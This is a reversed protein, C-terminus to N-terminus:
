AVISVRPSLRGSVPESLLVVVCGRTRDLVEVFTRADVERLKSGGGGSATTSGQQRMEERRRRRWRELEDDGGGQKREEARKVKDEEDLTMAVMARSALRERTALRAERLMAQEHADAAAADGLVGKIGTQHRRTSASSADRQFGAGRTAGRGDLGQQVTYGANSTSASTRPASSTPEDLDSGLEDDTNLEAEGQQEDGEDDSRDGPISGRDEPHARSSRGDAGASIGQGSLLSAELDTSPM